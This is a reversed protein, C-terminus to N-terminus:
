EVLGLSERVSDWREPERIVVNLPAIGRKIELGPYMHYVQLKAAAGTPKKKREKRTSRGKDKTTLAPALKGMEAEKKDNWKGFRDVMSDRWAALTEYQERQRWYIYGPNERVPRWAKRNSATDQLNIVKSETAMSVLESLLDKGERVMEDKWLKERKSKSRTDGPISINTVSTTSPKLPEFLWSNTAALDVQKIRANEERFFNVAGRLNTIENKLSAVERATAVAREQGSRDIDGAARKEQAAKKWKNAERELHNVERTLQENLVELETEHTLSDELNKELHEIRESQKAVTSM